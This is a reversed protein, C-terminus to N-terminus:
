LFMSYHVPSGPVGDGWSVPSLPVGTSSSSNTAGSTGTELLYTTTPDTPTMNLFDIAGILRTDSSQGSLAGGLSESYLDGGGSFESHIYAYDGFSNQSDILIAGSRGSIDVNTHGALAGSIDGLDGAGAIIGPIFSKGRAMLSGDTVNTLVSATNGNSDSSIGSASGSEVGFIAVDEGAIALDLGGFTVGGAFQTTEFVNYDRSWVGPQTFPGSGQAQANVQAYSEGAIQSFSSASIASFQDSYVDQLSLVGSLESVPVFSLNLVSIGASLQGVEMYGETFAAFNGASNGNVNM